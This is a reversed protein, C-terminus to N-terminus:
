RRARAVKSIRLVTGSPDSSSRFRDVTMRWAKEAEALEQDVMRGRLFLCVTDARMLPEALELLRPLAACARATVVDFRLNPVNEVRMRHIIPNVGVTLEAARAAEALFACKRADAEILHVEPVGLIALVLGPFGAGSGIDAVRTTATPLYALLQASDLMHRRWLDGFSGASVLNIASRWVDLVDAYARLRRLTERSVNATAAFADPTMAEQAADRRYANRQDDSM